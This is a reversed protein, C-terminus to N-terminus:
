QTICNHRGGTLVSVKLGLPALELTQDYIWSNGYIILFTDVSDNLNLAGSNQCVM